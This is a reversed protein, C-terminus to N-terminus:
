ENDKRKLLAIFSEWGHFSEGGINGSTDDYIDSNEFLGKDFANKFLQGIRALEIVRSVELDNLADPEGFEENTGQYLKLSGNFSLGGSYRTASVKNVDFDKRVTLNDRDIKKWNAQLKNWKEADVILGKVEDLLSKLKDIRTARSQSM